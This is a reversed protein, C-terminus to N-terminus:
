PIGGNYQQASPITSSVNSNIAEQRYIYIYIYLFFFLGCM